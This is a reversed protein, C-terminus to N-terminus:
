HILTQNLSDVIKVAESLTISRDIPITEDQYWDIERIIHIDNAGGGISYRITKKDTFLYFATMCVVGIIAGYLLAMWRDEWDWNKFM